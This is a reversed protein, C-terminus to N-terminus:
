YSGDPHVPGTGFAPFGGASFYLVADLFFEADDDERFARGVFPWVQQFVFHAHEFHAGITVEGNTGDGHFVTVCVHSPHGIVQEDWVGELHETVAVDINCHPKSLDLVPIVWYFQSLADV